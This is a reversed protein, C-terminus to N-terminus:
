TASDREVIDRGYKTGPSVGSSSYLVLGYYQAEVNYLIVVRVNGANGIGTSTDFTRASAENKMGNRSKVKNGNATRM